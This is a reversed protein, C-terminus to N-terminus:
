VAFREIGRWPWGRPPSGTWLSTRGDQWRAYHYLRDIQAGEQPIEEEFVWLGEPDSSRLLRGKPEVKGPVAEVPKPAGNAPTVPKSEVGSEAAMPVLRLHISGQDTAEPALPIWYDPVVTEIRYAPLDRSGPPPRDPAVWAARRDLRSELHHRVKAEVGWALDAM